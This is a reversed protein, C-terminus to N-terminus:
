ESTGGEEPLLYTAEGLFRPEKVEDQTFSLEVILKYPKPAVKFKWYDSKITKVCHEDLKAHGSSRIVTPNGLLSGDEDVYIELRVTGEVGMNMLDKPYFTRYLGVMQFGDGLPPLPPSDATADEEGNSRGSESSPAIEFEQSPDFPTEIEPETKEREQIENIEKEPPPAERVAQKEQTLESTQAKKEVTPEKQVPPAPETKPQPANSQLPPSEAGSKASSPIEVVRSYILSVGMQGTPRGWTGYEFLFLLAHLLLALVFSSAYRTRNKPPVRKM